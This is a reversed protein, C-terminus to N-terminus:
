ILFLTANLFLSFKTCFVCLCVELPCLFIMFCSFKSITVDFQQVPIGCVFCFLCIWPQFDVLFVYSLVKFFSQMKLVWLTKLYVKLDVVKSLQFFFYLRLLVQRYFFFVTWWFIKWFGKPKRQIREPQNKINAKIGFIM